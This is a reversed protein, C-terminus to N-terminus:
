FPLLTTLLEHPLEGKREVWDKYFSIPFQPVFEPEPVVERGPENNKFLDYLWVCSMEPKQTESMVLGYAIDPQEPFVSTLLWVAPTNPIHLMAVPQPDELETEGNHLLKRHQEATIFEM